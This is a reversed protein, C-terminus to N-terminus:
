EDACSSETDDSRATGVGPVGPVASLVSVLEANVEVVPRFFDGLLIAGGCAPLVPPLTDGLLPIGEGLSEGFVNPCGM